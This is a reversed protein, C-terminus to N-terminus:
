MFYRWCTEELDFDWLKWAIERSNKRAFFKIGLIEEYSLNVIDGVLEYGARRLINFTGISLGLEELPMALVKPDPPEKKPPAPEWPWHFVYEMEAYGAKGYLIYGLLRVQRLKRLANKELYRINSDTCRRIESIQRYTLHQRFRLAMTEQEIDTLTSLAFRLGEQIDLTVEISDLRGRIITLILNEPYSKSLLQKRVSANFEEM